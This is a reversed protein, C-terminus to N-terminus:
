RGEIVVHFSSKSELWDFKSWFLDNIAIDVDGLKEM